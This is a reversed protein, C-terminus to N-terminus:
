RSFRDTRIRVALSADLCGRFHGGLGRSHELIATPRLRMDCTRNGNRRSLNWPLTITHWPSVSSEESFPVTLPDHM